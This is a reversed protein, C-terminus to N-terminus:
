EKRLSDMSVIILSNKLLIKVVKGIFFLPDNYDNELIGRVSRLSNIDISSFTVNVDAVIIDISLSSLTMLAYDSSAHIAFKYTKGREIKTM